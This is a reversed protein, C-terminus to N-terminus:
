AAVPGHRVFDAVTRDFAEQASYRPAYGFARQAKDTKFGIDTCLIHVSSRTIVPALTVFPSLLRAGAQMVSGVALGVAKPIARRKSPFAFGWAEVFPQMFDFFNAAPQDTIFFAEGEVGPAPELMAFAALAHAYAVNGVYVHEFVASGDGLRFTLKGAEAERYVASMHYPDREGYMGCPRLVCARLAAPGEGAHHAELVAREAEAKTASYRDFPVSPYALSEDGNRIPGDGMVVDMTSTHVLGAVGAAACAALVNQTGGVNVAHLTAEPTNGWDVMAAAHLVVDVDQCAQRVADADTVSGERWEVPRDHKGARLDLVRVSIRMDKAEALQFLEEILARGLFGSGGTILFRPESPAHM